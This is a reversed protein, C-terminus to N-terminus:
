DEKCLVNGNVEVRATQLTKGMITKVSWAVQGHDPVEDFIVEETKWVLGQDDVKKPFIRQTIPLNLEYHLQGDLPLPENFTHIISFRKTMYFTLDIKPIDIIGRMEGFSDDVPISLAAMPTWTFPIFFHASCKTAFLNMQYQQYFFPTLSLRPEAAEETVRETAKKTFTGALANAVGFAAGSALSSTVALGVGGAVGAGAALVGATTAGLGAATLGAALTSVLFRPDRLEKVIDDLSQKGCFVQSTNFLGLFMDLVSKCDCTFNYNSEIFNTLCESAESTKNHEAVCKKIITIIKNSPSPLCSQHDADRVERPFDECQSTTSTLLVDMYRRLTLCLEESDPHQHQTMNDDHAHVTDQHGSGHPFSASFSILVLFGVVVVSDLRTLRM